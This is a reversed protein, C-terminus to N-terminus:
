NPKSGSPAGAAHVTKPGAPVTEKNVRTYRRTGVRGGAM